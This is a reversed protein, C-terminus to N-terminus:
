QLTCDLAVVELRWKPDKKLRELDHVFGLIVGTSQFVLYALELCHLRPAHCFGHQGYLFNVVLKNFFSVVFPRALDRDGGNGPIIDELHDPFM